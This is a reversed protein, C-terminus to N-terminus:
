SNKKLSFYINKKYFIESSKGSVSNLVLSFLYHIRQINWSRQKLYLNEFLTLVNSVMKKRSIVAAALASLIFKHLMSLVFSECGSKFCVLWM